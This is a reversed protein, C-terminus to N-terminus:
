CTIKISQEISSQNAPEKVAPIFDTKLFPTTRPSPTSLQATSRSRGSRAAKLFCDSGPPDASWSTTASPLVRIRKVGSKSGVSLVSTFIMMPLLARDDGGGVDAYGAVIKGAIFVLVDPDIQGHGRLDIQLAIHHHFDLLGGVLHPIGYRLEL